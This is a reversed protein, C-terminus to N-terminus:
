ILATSWSSQKGKCAFIGAKFRYSLHITEIMSIDTWCSLGGVTLGWNCCVVALVKVICSNFLFNVELMVVSTKYIMNQFEFGYKATWMEALWLTVVDHRGMMFRVCCYDTLICQCLAVCLKRIGFCLILSFILGLCEIVGIGVGVGIVINMQNKLTDVLKSVCGQFVYEFIVSLIYEPWSNLDRLIHCWTLPHATGVFITNCGLLLSDEVVSVM